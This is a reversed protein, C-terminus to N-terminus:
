DRSRHYSAHHSTMGRQDRSRPVVAQYPRPHSQYQDHCQSVQLTAPYSYTFLSFYSLTSGFHDLPTTTHHDSPCSTQRKVKPKEGRGMEMEEDGLRVRKGLAYLGFWSIRSVPAHETRASALRPTQDNAWRARGPVYPVLRVAREVTKDRISLGICSTTRSEM